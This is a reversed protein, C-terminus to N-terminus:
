SWTEGVATRTNPRPPLTAHWVAPRRCQRGLDAAEAVLYSSKSLLAAVLLFRQGRQQAPQRFYLPKQLPGVQM